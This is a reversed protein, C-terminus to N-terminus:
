STVRVFVRFLYRLAPVLVASGVALGVILLMLTARPAAADRITIVDPILFPYQSIAWGWIISIVQAAAAIRAVGFRHRWLAYIATIAAIGTLIQLPIAFAGTLLGSAIRSAQGRGIALAVAALLFVAGAAALGRLRFDEQLERTPSNYALYVAALFAFLALALGGVALPFWALWPSLYIAAFSGGIPLLRSAAGAGDSALAGVITGLFIPTAISAIAFAAGWRGRITENRAGYSRFVFASGRLVIGVLMLTLPIHLVIAMTSFAVPFATFLMVVVVILWVHNAEWIPALSSAVHERQLGRRPGSALLDWLGGGFDAGGTLAYATLAVVILGAITEPLGITSWFQGVSTM